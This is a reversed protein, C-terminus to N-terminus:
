NLNGFYEEFTQTKTDSVCEVYLIENKNTDRYKIYYLKYKLNDALFTIKYGDINLPTVFYVDDIRAENHLGATLAGKYVLSVGYVPNVFVVNSKQNSTIESQELTSMNLYIYLILEPSVVNTIFNKKTEFDWDDVGDMEKVESLFVSFTKVDEQSLDYTLITEDVITNAEEFRKFYLNEMISTKIENIKEEDLSEKGVNSVVEKGAAAEKLKLDTDFVSQTSIDDQSAVYEDFTTINEDEFGEEVVESPDKENLDPNPNISSRYMYFAFFVTALAMFFVIFFVIISIKAKGKNVNEDM